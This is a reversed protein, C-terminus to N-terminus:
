PGQDHSSLHIDDGDLIDIDMVDSTGARLGADALMSCNQPDYLLSM